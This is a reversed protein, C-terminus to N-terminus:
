GDLASRVARAVTEVQDPFITRPDLLVRDDAIRAVIPPDSARLRAALTDPTLHREPTVRVLWTKLKAGPFSGGGVESEGEVVDADKGVGKHLAEARQRIQAVDETLMRLVPIERLSTAPDRYLALTAELAALTLKDARVARALPDNRCAEIAARTGLLIGAQPGGLLKDGSFAVADMGSALAQLVTPEGGLGWPALDVLLGSGLDYVSAVGRAHGVAAIEQAPVQATFGTVQFNSQHVKLLLKSAPTLAAEYDKLHTRNTTGVEVLTAGSRAMIDPIRFAGGIEVLEGRSVIAEGGRALASLAVLVAGAANNVVLADEAGTLEVLLDRCLAHRSGRAGRAIDYELNAYGLGVRALAALAPAALPARGLNTHLVVGTANIVPGLSPAALRQVRARIAASWGEPPASGGNARAAEITERVARVVLGRPGTAALAAVEPEALLADVAPLRRRPDTM